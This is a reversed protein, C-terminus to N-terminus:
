TTEGELYAATILMKSKRTEEPEVISIIEYVRSDFYIRMEVNISTDYRLAFTSTTVFTIKDAQVIEDGPKNVLQAYKKKFFEWGTIKEENFGGIEITKQYFLIIRDLRGINIKSNLM